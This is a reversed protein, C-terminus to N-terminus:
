KGGKSYYPTHPLMTPHPMISCIPFDSIRNGILDNSKEILRIMGTASRGQPQNLSQCFDTGPIERPTYSSRRM